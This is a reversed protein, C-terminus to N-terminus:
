KNWDVMNGVHDVSLNYHYDLKNSAQMSYYEETSLDYYMCIDVMLIGICKMFFERVVEKVLNYNRDDIFWTDNLIQDKTLNVQIPKRENKSM